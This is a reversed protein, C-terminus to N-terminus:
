VEIKELVRRVYFNDDQSVIDILTAFEAYESVKVLIEAAKERITYEPRELIKTLIEYLVSKDVYSYFGVLGELAWYM